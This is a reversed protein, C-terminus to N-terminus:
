REIDFHHRHRQRLNGPGRALERRIEEDIEEMGDLREPDASNKLIGNRHDWQDWSVEWLKRILASAWRRSSKTSEIHDYHRQMLDRWKSSICGELLREFGIDFQEM